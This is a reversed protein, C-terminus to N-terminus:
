HELMVDKGPEWDQAAKQINLWYRLRVASKKAEALNDTAFHQELMKLENEIRSATDHKVEDLDAESTAEEIAERAEMVTMLIDADTLSEGEATMDIGRLSLLYEARSLPKQLTTYAKNLLSSTSEALQRHKGEGSGHLDPHVTQQLKLFARRLARVDLEFSGKPPAPGLGPFYDYFSVSAPMPCPTACSSCTLRALPQPSGCAVCRKLASQDKTQSAHAPTAIFRRIARTCLLSRHIRSATAAFLVRKSQM